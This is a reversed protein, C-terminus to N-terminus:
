YDRVQSPSTPVKQFPDGSSGVSRHQVREAAHESFAGGDVGGPNGTYYPLFPLDHSARRETETLEEYSLDAAKEGLTLAASEEVLDKRTVVGIIQPKSPTIYMHRLGMTRFLRYARSLRADAHVIFPHRQMFHTLDISLEMERRSLTSAIMEVGPSKFPIQKLKELLADRDESNEYLVERPEEPDFMSVRHTLMKLLINRTISGHLEIPDGANHGEGVDTITVPFAGHSTNTLVEVLERVRMVPRLTVLSDAMVEAVKLKDVAVGAHEPEDLFPAGRIKIHTDYIGMSYKDGIAKAFFITLMLPIILQMSGTTEMVLVTISITMRTAGGLCAAAGVVAYTHLDVVIESGTSMVMARVIRGVIQGGAAGVALSPVFLGTPAGIGYTWTMLAYMFVFYMILADMTFLHQEFEDTGNQEYVEGLHLLLKLSDALPVFFLQGYSSYEDAKCFLSRFYQDRIQRRTEVGYEFKAVGGPLEDSVGNGDGDTAAAVRYAEPIPKCPSAAMMIFLVTATVFCVFIVEAHRRYKDSVPIFRQRWMTIKVNINVFAAGLLGGMCGIAAFVPVEWFYWWFVRSYNAEDDTFLGFDRHVGFKAGAFDMADFDLQDLWHTTLVGTCTALFGRWLMGTSHFSAGEEVTFLMGGIPAGFAVAVGVATGIAVFDRKDADNRFHSPKKTRFGLTHSGFASLGGGVLGGGHVFPGEKGAILGSGISFAIGGLKAGLTKIRLLGRLHVGNLYTKLEPIGSGAALPEVYSVLGGAVSALLCSIIVWVLWAGFGAGGPSISSTTAGYKWGNFKKILGDVTFALFGMVVGILVSMAWRWQEEAKYDARKRARRADEELDNDAPDYDHSDFAAMRKLRAHAKDAQATDIAGGLMEAREKHISRSGEEMNVVKDLRDMEIYKGAGGMHGRGRVPAGRARRLNEGAGPQM